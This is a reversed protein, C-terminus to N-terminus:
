GPYSSCENVRVMKMPGKSARTIPLISYVCVYVYVCLYVYVYVYVYVCICVCMYVYMVTHSYFRVEIIEQNSLIDGYNTIFPESRSEALDLWVKIESGASKYRQLRPIIWRLIEKRRNLQQLVNFYRERINAVMADVKKRNGEDPLYQSFQELM